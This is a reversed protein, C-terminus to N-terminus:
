VLSCVRYSVYEGTTPSPRRIEVIDGPVLGLVRAQMDIHYLIRPLENKGRINYKQIVNTIEEEMLKRHPPVYEHRSPNSVLHKIHFFSIRASRTTWAKVAQINFVDNYPESLVIILEDEKPNYHEPADEDYLKMIENEIRLRTVGEIWYLVCCRNMPANGDEKREACIRLLSSSTIAMKILDDPSTNEYADVNYGRNKLIELITPRTRAILDFLESDM